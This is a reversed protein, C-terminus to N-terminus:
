LPITQIASRLYEVRQPTPPHSMFLKMVRGGSSPAAQNMRDMFDAMAEPKYGARYLYRLGLQDAEQEAQRSYYLDGGKTTFQAAAQALANPNEGLIMSTVLAYGYQRTIAEGHHHAAVHGIEHAMVSALQAENECLIMLGTYVYMYGGPLAFANVTNPDNIVKFRYNVDRRDVVAALRQGIENVYAQVAPDQLVVQQQEVEAAMQAGLAQEEQVSLLNFGGTGGDLTMCGCLCGSLAFVVPVVVRYMNAETQSALRIRM